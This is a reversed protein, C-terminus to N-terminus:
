WILARSSPAVKWSKALGDMVSRVCTNSSREHFTCNPKRFGSAAPTACLRDIPSGRTKLSPHRPRRRSPDPRSASKRCLVNWRCLILNCAITSVSASLFRCSWVRCSPCHLTMRSLAAMRSNRYCEVDSFKDPLFCLFWFSYLFFYLIM